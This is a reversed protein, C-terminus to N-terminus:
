LQKPNLYLSAQDTPLWRKIKSITNQPVFIMDGPQLHLDEQLNKARLMKKLNLVRSEVWDNSVRRFLVVQSHKSTDLFGGAMEIAQLVTTDGRLDYKGPHGVQGGAIFYPKEFERLVVAISPDALIKAYSQRLAETLQPVTEGAVHVDGVSQLTIFGDPQVTVTQNFEPSFEFSIDFTDGPQLIYRPNRHMLVPDDAGAGGSTHLNVSTLQSASGVPAAAQNQQAVAPLAAALFLALGFLLSGTKKM